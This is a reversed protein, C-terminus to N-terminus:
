SQETQRNQNGAESNCPSPQMVNALAAGPIKEIQDREDAANDQKDPSALVTLGAVVHVARIGLAYLSIHVSVPYAAFSPADNICKQM